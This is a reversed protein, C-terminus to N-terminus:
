KSSRRWVSRRRRHSRRRISRDPVLEVTGRIGAVANPTRVDISEGPVMREKAVAVAIKGQYLDLTATGPVETITLVSHERATVIAKGGLLIRALSKDGTTIRDHLFVDDKFRLQAPAPTVARIVTATGELTTVVGARALQAFTSPPWVLASSALIIFLSSAARPVRASAM